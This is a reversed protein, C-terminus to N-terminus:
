QTDLVEVIRREPTGHRVIGLDRTTQERVAQSAQFAAEAHAKSDFLVLSGFEGTADDFSLYEASEYGPQLRYVADLRSAMTEAKSRGGPGYMARTIVAFKTM